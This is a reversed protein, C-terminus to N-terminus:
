APMGSPEPVRELWRPPCELEALDPLTEPSRWVATLGEAGRAEAVADCFSKGLEYQRLKLDIGLLRGAVEGLGGRRARREDLRARLEAVGSGLEVAAADMLHEAHGEIVSMAAQLRDLTAGYAPDALARALEGRLVKRVLERPDRIV